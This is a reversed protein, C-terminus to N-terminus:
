TIAQPSLAGSVALTISLRFPTGLTLAPPKMWDRLYTLPKQIM